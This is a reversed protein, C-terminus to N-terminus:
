GTIMPIPTSTTLTGRKTSDNSRVGAITSRSNVAPSRTFSSPRGRVPVDSAAWLNDLTAQIADLTGPGTTTELVLPQPETM